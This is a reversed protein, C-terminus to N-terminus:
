ADHGGAVHKLFVDELSPNIWRAEFVKTGSSVLSAILEPADERDIVALVAEGDRRARGRLLALVPEVPEVMLRLWGRGELLEAVPGEAILKGENMIAVRDCIKAVEALQHSALVVTVGDRTSLERILRRIDQNGVPDMGSTPEDLIVLKPNSVLAAAIALRQKMGVSFGHVKRHAADTLGVRALLSDCSVAFQGQGLQALMRLTEKATLFNFFRPTEIMSGIEWCLNAKAGPIQNLVRISGRDPHILGLCLRFLTSKGAGNKGLVGYVGGLPVRISLCRLASVRSSGSDFAKDLEITEIADNM